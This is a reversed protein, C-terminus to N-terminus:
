GSSRWPLAWYLKRQDFFIGTNRTSTSVNVLIGSAKFRTSNKLSPQLFNEEAFQRFDGNNVAEAELRCSWMDSEPEEFILLLNEFHNLLILFKEAQSM